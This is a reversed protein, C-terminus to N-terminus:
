PRVQGGLSVVPASSESNAQSACARASAALIPELETLHDELTFRKAGKWAGLCLKNYHDADSLARVIAESLGEVTPPDGPALEGSEGAVLWDPIGGVAYGVAPLGISGAEIGVLGFPEPWLSPAALLDTQRMLKLRQESDVWGLFDVKVGLQAALNQLIARDPGDGAVTLTLTRGLRVSAKPLARILHRVGKVDMLRGVFSIRGQPDRRPPPLDIASGEFPLRVLRLRDTGVGHREFEQYMHGSAVLITHLRTFRAKRGLQQRFMRLMTGPHFGGCRRPYYLLLCQAGFVRTCPQVRPMAHCKRGSVCTGWYTHAYLITSYKDLLGIELAADDLGHSYVVDPEWKAVLRLAEKVGLETTCWSPLQAAEPDIIEATPDLAHEYLLGVSHGRHLLGPIVSQLYKEVGGVVNRQVNAILIRV